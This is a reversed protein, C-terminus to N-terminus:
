EMETGELSYMKSGSLFAGNGDVCRFSVGDYFESQFGVM